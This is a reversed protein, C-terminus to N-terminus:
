SVAEPAAEPTSAAVLALFADELRRRSTLGEVGIGARVLAAVLDSRPTGDLDVVLGGDVRDVTVVGPLGAAVASAEAVDAGAAVRVHVLGSEGVIECVSGAAVLRGRDM